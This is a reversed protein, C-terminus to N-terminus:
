IKKEDLFNKLRLQPILLCKYSYQKRESIIDDDKAIDDKEITNVDISAM